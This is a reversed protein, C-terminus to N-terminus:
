RQKFLAVVRPKQTKGMANCPLQDVCMVQRPIKYVALRERCWNRLEQLTPRADGAAVVCASVLEGWVEDEVGVVACDRIQPHTRLVEEIELASVKYGGTKIIDSSSRGLIRYGGRDDVVAVDGTRFWGDHFAARTAEPRNWYELFVGPGRVEIEAPTDDPALQGSEDLRRVQVGPLPTGVHGPVRQGDLPNSLAMGIETMGYRELLVHGTIEKWARLTTAPLAASGSVMLRMRRSGEALARQQQPSAERWAAILKAYITPVAMFLTLDGRHFRQWVASADFRPLFECTAGVALACTLVNIVGHIHHLPLVHLIHDEPSWQWADVLSQVQARINAHTTVVGKPRGTTGSTYLMMARRAPDIEPLPAVHAASAADTRILRLGRQKAIDRLRGELGAHVVLTSAQADDVVYELEPRPHEIALPTAIGGARWTGWQAAVYAFGPPVLFAVRKENLDTEGELLTSAIRASTALLQEYTYTRQDAVIAVSTAHRQASQLLGITGGHEGRESM